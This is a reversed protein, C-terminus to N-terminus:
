SLFKKRPRISNTLILTILFGITFLPFSSGPGNQPPDITGCSAAAVTQDDGITAPAEQAQTKSIPYTFPADLCSENDSLVAETDMIPQLGSNVNEMISINVLYPLYSDTSFEYASPFTMAVLSSGLRKSKVHIEFNNESMTESLSIITSLDITYTQTESLYNLYKTAIPTSYGNQYITLQFERQTGFPYAIVDVKVKKEAGTLSLATLDVKFIDNGSWSSTTSKRFWGVFSKEHRNEVGYNFISIPEFSSQLKQYGYEQDSRLACNISVTGIDLSTQNSTLNIPTPKGDFERGCASYFSGVYSAPCFENQVNAFYGPLSNPNKIPSTYIYYTDNLDLGAIVFHGTEDSIAGISEGTNRSIAQVHVGLVGVSSGGKVQGTITGYNQSYKARIGSKDDSSLTSQGSYSSYFMSSNLVESHSLGFLHGIEHTVVDGLYVQGAPYLGPASKFTYDDNLLISANQIAGSSSYSIETLGLVASGYPFDSVFEIKNTSNPSSVIQAPSTQNWQNMSQSIINIIQTSSLDSSNTIIKVPVNPNAWFLEAGSQTMSTQHALALSILFFLVLFIRM